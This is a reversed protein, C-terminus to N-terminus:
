KYTIKYAIVKQQTEDYLFDVYCNNDDDTIEPDDTGIRVTYDPDGDALYTFDSADLADDYEAMDTIFEFPKADNPLINEERIVEFCANKRRSGDPDPNDKWGTNACGCLLVLMVCVILFLFSNRRFM